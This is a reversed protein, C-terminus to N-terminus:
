VGTLYDEGKEAIIAKRMKKEKDPGVYAFLARLLRKENGSSTKDDDTRYEFAFDVINGKEKWFALVDSIPILDIAIAAGDWDSQYIARKLNSYAVVALSKTQVSPEATGAKQAIARKKAEKSVPIKTDLTIKKHSEIAAKEEKTLKIRGAEPDLINQLTQIRMAFIDYIQYPRSKLYNTQTVYNLDADSVIYPNKAKINRARTTDKNIKAQLLRTWEFAFDSRAIAQSVKYKKAYGSISTPIDSKIYGSKTLSIVLSQLKKMATPGLAEGRVTFRKIDEKKNAM